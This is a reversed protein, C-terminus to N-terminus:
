RGMIVSAFLATGSDRFLIAAWFVIVLLFTASVFSLLQWRRKEGHEATIYLSVSGLVPLGTASGLQTINIFTPQLMYRLFSWALGAGM